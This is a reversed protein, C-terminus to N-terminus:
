SIVVNRWELYSKIRKMQYSNKIILIIFFLFSLVFLIYVKLKELMNDLHLGLLFYFCIMCFNILVNLVANISKDNNRQSFDDFNNQDLNAKKNFSFFCFGVFNLGHSLSLFVMLHMWKLFGLVSAIKLYFVITLLSALVLNFLICYYIHQKEFKEFGQKLFVTFLILVILVSFIPIFFIFNSLYLNIQQFESLKLILLSIFIFCCTFIYIGVFNIIIKALDNSYKLYKNKFENFISILFFPILILISSYAALNLNFPKLLILICYIIGLIAIYIMTKNFTYDAEIKLSLSDKQINKIILEDIKKEIEM